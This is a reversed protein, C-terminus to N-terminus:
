LIPNKMDKRANPINTTSIFENRGECVTAYKHGSTDIGQEKAIYIVNWSGTFPNKLSAIYGPRDNFPKRRSKYNAQIQEQTRM